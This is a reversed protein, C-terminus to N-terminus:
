QGSTPALIDISVIIPAGLVTTVVVDKTATNSFASTATATRAKLRVYLKDGDGAQFTTNYTQATPTITAFPTLTADDAIPTKSVYVDIGVLSGPGTAPIPSCQVAVGNVFDCAQTPLTYTIKLPVPVAAAVSAVLALAAAICLRKM